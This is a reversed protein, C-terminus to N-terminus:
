SNCKKKNQVTHCPRCIYGLIKNNPLLKDEVDELILVTLQDETAAPIKHM